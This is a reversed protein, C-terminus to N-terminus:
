KVYGLDLFNLKLTAGDYGTRSPNFMVYEGIVEPHLKKLEQWSKKYKPNAKDLHIYRSEWANINHRIEYAVDHENNKSCVTIHKPQLKMQRENVLEYAGTKHSGRNKLGSPIANKVGNYHDIVAEVEKLNSYITYTDNVKGNGCSRGIFSQTATDARLSNTDVMEHINPSAEPPIVIGVRLAGRVLFLTPQTPKTSLAAPIDSITVHKHGPSCAKFMDAEIVQLNPYHHAIAAMLKYHRKGTARVVTYQNKTTLLSEIRHRMFQTLDGQPTVLKGVQKLRGRRYMHEVSNYAKGPQLHIIHDYPSEIEDFLLLHAFSTAGVDVLLREGQFDYIRRQFEDRQAGALAAIHAEDTLITFLTKKDQPVPVYKFNSRHAVLFNKAYPVLKEAKLAQVVNEATQECLANNSDALAFVNCFPRGEEIARKAQQIAILIQLGTKGVQPEAMVVVRSQKKGKIATAINQWAKRQNPWAYKFKDNEM